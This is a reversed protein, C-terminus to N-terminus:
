TLRYTASIPSRATRYLVDFLANEQSIEHTLRNPSIYVFNIKWCPSPLARRLVTAM